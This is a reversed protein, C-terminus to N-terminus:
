TLRAPEACRRYDALLKEIQRHSKPSQVIVLTSNTEHISGWGGVDDWNTSDITGTIAWTLAKADLRGDASPAMLDAVPYVRVASFGEEERDYQGERYGRDYGLRGGALFGAVCCVLFLLTWLSFHVRRRRQTSVQETM